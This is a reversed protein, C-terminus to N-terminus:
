PTKSIGRKIVIFRTENHEYNEINEAIVELGKSILVNKDAIAAASKLNKSVIIDIAAATSETEIQKASRYKEHIYESCQKFAEYKSLIKNIKSHKKLAGISHHVPMQIAEIVGINKNEDKCYELLCDITAEVGGTFSTENPVVGADAIENKVHEFVDRINKCPILKAETNESYAKAAKETYTGSPGLYAIKM